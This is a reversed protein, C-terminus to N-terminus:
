TIYRGFASQKFDSSARHLPPVEELRRFFEIRDDKTDQATGLPQIGNVNMGEDEERATVVKQGRYVRGV